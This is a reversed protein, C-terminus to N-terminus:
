TWQKPARKRKCAIKLGGTDFDNLHSMLFAFEQARMPM